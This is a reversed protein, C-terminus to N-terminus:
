MCTEQLQGGQTDAPAQHPVLLHVHIGLLALLRVLALETALLVGLHGAVLVVHSGDM